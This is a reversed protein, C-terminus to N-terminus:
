AKVREAKPDYLPRLSADAAFGCAPSRSRTAVFRAGTPRAKAPAPCMDWAGDRRRSSPRLQRIHDDGVIKGTACSRRTTSCCRSPIACGSSCWGARCAPTGSACAGRRPRHLRGQGDERRLRPRGGACPGRRHHRPRFPPVGERHPLFGAHAPRLTEPRCGNGAEEIAEFVHAAQDTSVYLEWGLEGVYTVRHARALGM